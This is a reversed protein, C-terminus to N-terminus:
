KSPVAWSSLQLSPGGVRKVKYEHMGTDMTCEKLVEKVEYHGDNSSSNLTTPTATNFPKIQEVNITLQNRSNQEKLVVEQPSSVEVITYPGTWKKSLKKSRGKGICDAQLMVQNGAEWTRSWHPTAEVWDIVTLSHKIPWSFLQKKVNRQARCM